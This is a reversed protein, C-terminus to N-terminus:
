GVKQNRGKYAKASKYTNIQIWSSNSDHKSMSFEFALIGLLLLLFLVRFCSDGALCFNLVRWLPGDPARLRSPMGLALYPPMPPDSRSHRRTSFYSIRFMNVQSLFLDSLCHPVWELIMIPHIWPPSVAQQCHDMFGSTSFVPDKQLWHPIRSTDCLHHSIFKIDGFHYNQIM